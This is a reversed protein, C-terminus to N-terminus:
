KLHIFKLNKKLGTYKARKIPSNKFIIRFTEESLDEWDRNTWNLFGSNNFFLNNQTPTSFKNWPCVDQCIDCGFVWGEMKGEFNKEIEEKLEITLYSICKSGDVVYPAIIADTPCAEICKNCTGCYDSIPSDEDFAVDILIEAIFFFSGKGKVILNSNKGVWGLGANKAWVKDMVPASDVFCRANFDGLEEQLRHILEICREKIVQHYDDGYAYKSVKPSLQNQKEGPFYNLLLSIISKTEPVLLRPDLRKDFNRSMYDMKGHFNKALWNELREAEEALFRAKSVGCFDFGIEKAIKKLINTRQSQNM